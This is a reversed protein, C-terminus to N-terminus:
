PRESAAEVCHAPEDPAATAYYHCGKHTGPAPVPAVPRSPVQDEVFGFGSPFAVEDRRICSIFLSVWLIM